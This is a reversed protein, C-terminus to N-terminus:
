DHVVLTVDQLALEEILFGLNRAHDPPLLEYGAPDSLGFGVHDMAVVRFPDDALRELHAIVHRYVYSCEPNGHVLVVTSEPDGDGHTSDRVFLRKGEDHGDPLEYWAGCGAPYYDSPVDTLPTEDPGSHWTGGSGAVTRDGDDSM